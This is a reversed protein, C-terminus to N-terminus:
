DASFPQRSSPAISADHCQYASAAVRRYFFLGALHLIARLLWRLNFGALCLVAYLVDGTKEQLYCRRMDHDHKVHVIVPEIAPTTQSLTAAHKDPDQTQREDAAGFLKREIDRLLRVTRQRNLM